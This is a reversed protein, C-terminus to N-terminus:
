CRTARTSGVLATSRMRSFYREHRAQGCVPCLVELTARLPVLQPQRPKRPLRSAVLVVALLLAAVVGLLAAGGAVAQLESLEHFRALLHRGSSVSPATGIREVSSFTAIGANSATFMNQMTCCCCLMNCGPVAAQLATRCTTVCYRMSCRLMDRLCDILAM